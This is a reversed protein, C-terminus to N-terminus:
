RCILDIAADALVQLEAQPDGARARVSLSHLTAAAVAGAGAPDGRCQASAV